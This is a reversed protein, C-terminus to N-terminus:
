KEYNIQIIEHRSVCIAFVAPIFIINHLIILSFVILLGNKIGFCSLISSITYGVSFGKILITGHVIPIGAITTAGFWLIIVILINYSISKKLLAFLNINGYEKIESILNSLYSNIEQIQTDNVNNIFFVGFIIGALFLITIILYERKNNLIHNYITTGIKSM